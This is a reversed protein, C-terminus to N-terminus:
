QSLLGEVMAMEYDIPGVILMRDVDVRTRFDAPQDPSKFWFIFDVVEGKVEDSIAFYEKLVEEQPDDWADSAQEMTEFLRPRAMDSFMNYIFYLLKGSDFRVAGICKAM